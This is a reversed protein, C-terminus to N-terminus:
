TSDDYKISLAHIYTLLLSQTGLTRAFCTVTQKPYQYVKAQSMIESKCLIVIILGALITM